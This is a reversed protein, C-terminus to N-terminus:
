RVSKERISRTLAEAEDYLFDDILEDLKALDEQLAEDAIGMLKHTLNAALDDDFEGLAVLLADLLETCNDQTGSCSTPSCHGQVYESVAKVVREYEALLPGTEKLIGGLNSARGKFELSEALNGLAEAGIMRANGKLAHAENTLLAVV